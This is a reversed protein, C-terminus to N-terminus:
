PTDQIELLLEHAALFRPALALADLLHRRARSPDEARLLQALQFHIQSPNAPELALLRQNAAIALQSDGAQTAALSLAENPTRLFPNLALARHAHETILAWPPAAAATELEILRLYANLASSHQTALRRLLAIEEETRAQEKLIRAKAWIASGDSVDDPLLAILRDATPLANDWDKAQMQQSLQRRLVFLNKPNAKLFALVSEPDAPNLDEASPETWDAGKGFSQAMEMLHTAFAAEFAEVPEVQATIADNIRSGKKLAQMLRLLAPHGHKAVLFAVAEGAQYYAFMLHEGSKANLFAQSLQGVPTAEGDLIMQRYDATMKMGWAPDRQAEEYVSIGESLWRPMRNETATLTVVHCFEHWLTSEWNNRGHGLSGPSNMTVVSGFCAGLIGQGGLNGFTRIAFDQQAPFFEILVPRKLELQYRQCLTQHAEELLELVRAGYIPWERKPMKVTFHPTREEAYNALQKELKGLNHAQINYGDAERIAAALQWAEEEEGLRLLDHCLQMKAPLYSPAFLLAKRQHAAGEAFRYARSVIRGLTHDVIPNQAWRQLGEARAATVKASDATTISAVAARLAWATPHGESVDIVTQIDAEADLFKEAGIHLEARLLLAGEHHSNVELIRVINEMAVARDSNMFATALGHRLEPTEGHNKLGLRFVNAARAADNKDLALWGEALYPAESKPDKKQGVQFYHTIVKQADAGAELAAQGLAVWEEASRESAPKAKAATNIQQLTADILEQRGLEKAMQLRPQLLRLDNPYTTLMPVTEELAEELRGLARLAQLHILRWEISKLGREKALQGVRVCLDYDGAQLVQKVPGLNREEFLQNLDIQQAPALPASLSGLVLGPM